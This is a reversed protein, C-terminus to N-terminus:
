RRARPDRRRVVQGRPGRGRASAGGFVGAALEDAYSAMGLGDVLEIGREVAIGVVFRERIGAAHGASQSLKTNFSSYGCLRAVLVSPAAEGIGLQLDHGKDRVPRGVGGDGLLQVEGRVGYFGVDAVREDFETNMGSRLQRIDGAIRATRRPALTTPLLAALHCDAADAPLGIPRDGLEEVSHRFM